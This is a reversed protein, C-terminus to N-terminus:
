PIFPFIMIEKLIDNEFILSLFWLWGQNEESIAYQIRDERLRYLEGFNNDSLYEEMKEYPFLHKYNEHNIEIKLLDLWYRPESRGKSTTITLIYFDWEIIFVDQIGRVQYDVEREFETIKYNDFLNLGSLVEEISDFRFKLSFDSFIHEQIERVPSNYQRIKINENISLLRNIVDMDLDSLLETISMFDNNLELNNLAYNRIINIPLDLIKESKNSIDQVINIIENQLEEHKVDNDNNYFKNKNKYCNTFLFLIIFIIILIKKM